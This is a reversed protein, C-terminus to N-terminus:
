PKTPKDLLALIEDESITEEQGNRSAKIREEALKAGELLTAKEDDDLSEILKEALRVKVKDPLKLAKAILDKQITTM